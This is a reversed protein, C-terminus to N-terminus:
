IYTRTRKMRKTKFSPLNRKMYRTNTKHVLRYKPKSKNNHSKKIRKHHYGVRRFVFMRAYSPGVIMTRRFLARRDTQKYKGIHAEKSKLKRALCRINFVQYKLLCNSTSTNEKVNTVNTCMTNTIKSRMNSCLSYNKTSLFKFLTSKNQQSQSNFITTSYNFSSVSPKNLYISQKLFSVPNIQKNFFCKKM